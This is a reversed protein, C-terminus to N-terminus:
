GYKTQDERALEDELVLEALAGPIWDRNTDNLPSPEFFFGGLVMEVHGAGDVLPLLIGRAGYAYQESRGVQYLVPSVTETVRTLLGVFAPVDRGPMTAPDVMMGTTDIGAKSTLESGVLRMRFGANELGILM